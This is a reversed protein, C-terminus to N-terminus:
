VFISANKSCFRYYINPLCFLASPRQGDASKEFYFPYKRLPRRNVLHRSSKELCWERAEDFRTKKGGLDVNADALAVGYLLTLLLTIYKM